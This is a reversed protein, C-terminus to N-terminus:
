YQANGGLAAMNDLWTSFWSVNAVLRNEVDAGLTRTYYGVEYSSRHSCVLRKIPHSHASRCSVVSLSLSLCLALARMSQPMCGEAAVKRAWAPLGADTYRPHMTRNRLCCGVQEGPLLPPMAERPDGGYNSMQGWFQVRGLVDQVFHTHTHTHTHTVSLM